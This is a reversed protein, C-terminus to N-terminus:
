PHDHVHDHEVTETEIELDGPQITEDSEAPNQDVDEGHLARHELEVFRIRSVIAVHGDAFVIIYRGDVSEMSLVMRVHPTSIEGFTREDPYYTVKHVIQEAEPSTQLDGLSPPFRDEHSAAYRAIAVFLQRMQSSDHALQASERAQRITPSLLDGALSLYIWPYVGTEGFLGVLTSVVSPYGIGDFLVDDGDVVHRLLVPKAQGALRGYSPMVSNVPGRAEWRPRSYNAMATMVAAALGYGETLRAATDIFLLRQVHRGDLAKTEQYVSSNLISTSASLQDVANLVSEPTMGVVLTSGSVCASIQLPVPLGPFAVTFMSLDDVTTWEVLRVYGQSGQKSFFDLTSAMVSMSSQIIDPNTLEVLGVISMFGDGGTGPSRYIAITDGLQDFFQTRLDIGLVTKGFQFGMEVPSVPKGAVKPWQEPDVVEMIIRDIFSPIGSLNLKQIDFLTADMPIGKLDSSSLGQAPVLDGFFTMLNSARGGVVVSGDSRTGCGVSIEMAQPGKLGLLEFARELRPADPGTSAIMSRFWPEMSSFVMQFGLNVTTDAPMAFSPPVASSEKPMQNFSLAFVPEGGNQLGGVYTPQDRGTTLKFLGPAEAVERALNPRLHMLDDWEAILKEVSAGSNGHVTLQMSVPENVVDGADGTADVRLTMRSMLIQFILNSATIDFESSNGLNLGDRELALLASRLGADLENSLVGDIGSSYVFFAPKEGGSSPSTLLGPIVVLACLLTKMCPM